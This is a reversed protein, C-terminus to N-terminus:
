SNGSPVEEPKARDQAKWRIFVAEVDTGRLRHTDPHREIRGDAILATLTESTCRLRWCAEARSIWQTPNANPM